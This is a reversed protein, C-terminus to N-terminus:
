GTEPRLLSATRAKTARVANTDGRRRGAARQPGADCLIRWGPAEPGRVAIALPDGNM